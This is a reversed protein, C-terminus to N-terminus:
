PSLREMLRDITIPASGEYHNNVFVFPSVNGQRLELLLTSIEDLEADHPKVIRNWQKGTAKEIEARDEGMLRIVITPFQLLLDKHEAYLDAIHPMWYGSILVPSLKHALLFEYFGRSLYNKNRTELAYTFGSPLEDILAVLSDLFAQASSMKEKNLYEFQFIIPGLVDHLPRIRDLFELMLDRSLFHPNVELPETKSPRDRKYLHTLTISNPVKVGFRFSNAVAARYAVADREVPLRVKMPDEFLSWFWRDIEVANYRQAYEALYEAKDHSQYVLGEWSPYNWTCTGIRLEAM